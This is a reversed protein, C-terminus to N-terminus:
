PIGLIQKATPLISSLPVAFGDGVQDDVDVIIGFQDLGVGGFNALEGEDEREPQGPQFSAGQGPGFRLTDKLSYPHSTEAGGTADWLIQPPNNGLSANGNDDIKVILCEDQLPQGSTAEIWVFPEIHGPITTDPDGTLMGRWVGGDITSGDDFPQEFAHGTDDTLLQLTGVVLTRGKGVVVVDPSAKCVEVGNSNRRKVIM